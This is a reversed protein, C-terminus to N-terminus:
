VIELEIHSHGAVCHEHLAIAAYKRVDMWGPRRRHRCHLNRGARECWRMNVRGSNRARRDAKRVPTRLWAVIADENLHLAATGDLGCGEVCDDVSPRDGAVVNPSGD